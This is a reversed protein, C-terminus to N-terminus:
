DFVKLTTPLAWPTFPKQYLPVKRNSLITSIKLDNARFNFDYGFYHHIKPIHGFFVLFPIHKKHYIKQKLFFFM